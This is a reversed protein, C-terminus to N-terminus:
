SNFFPVPLASIVALVGIIVITKQAKVTNYGGFQQIVIGSVIVGSVPASLSTTSFYINVTHPDVNLVQQLYDPLWYQVGTVVFFLGSSAICLFLFAKNTAMDKLDQTISRKEKKFGGSPEEENNVNKDLKQLLRKNVFDVNENNM